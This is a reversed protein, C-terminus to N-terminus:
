QLFKKNEEYIEVMRNTEIIPLIKFNVAGHYFVALETLHEFDDTEFIQFGGSGDAYNYAPESKMKKDEEKFEKEIEALKKMRKVSEEPDVTDYFVIYKM